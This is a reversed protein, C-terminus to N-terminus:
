LKLNKITGAWMNRQRYLEYYFETFSKAIYETIDGRLKGKKIEKQILDIMQNEFQKLTSSNFFNQIEKKVIREVEKKDTQSLAM